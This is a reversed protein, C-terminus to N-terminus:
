FVNACHVVEDVHEAACWRWARGTRSILLSVGFRAADNPAPWHSHVIEVSKVLRTSKSTVIV